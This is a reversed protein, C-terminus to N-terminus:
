SNQFWFTHKKLTLCVVTVNTINSLNRDCLRHKSSTKRTPFHRGIRSAGTSGWGRVSGSLRIEWCGAGWVLILLAEARRFPNWTKASTQGVLAASGDSLRGLDTGHIREANAKARNLWKFLAREAWYVYGSCSAYNDTIAYYNLHGEIRSKDRRFMEGKTLKTRNPKEWDAFNRLSLQSEQRETRRLLM